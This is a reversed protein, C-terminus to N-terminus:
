PTHISVSDIDVEQQSVPNFTGEEFCDLSMTKLTSYLLARQLFMNESNLVLFYDESFNREKINEPEAFIKLHLLESLEGAKKKLSIDQYKIYLSM